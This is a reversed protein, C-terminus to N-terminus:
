IYIDGTLYNENMLDKYLDKLQKIVKTIQPATNGTMEKIYVYSAQKNIVELNERKKFLEMVAKCIKRDMEKEFLEGINSEVYQVYKEIFYILDADADANMIKTYITKDDDVEKLDAHAKQKKYNEKNYVILWRKAITGFYSYAKGKNKDYLHLKQLLFTVVEHKLQEINDVETYYFKFTHIINEALKHFSFNIHENFVENRLKDDTESLYQSIADETEQTFYNRSQKRKRKRLKGSKTFVNLDLIVPEKKPRPM